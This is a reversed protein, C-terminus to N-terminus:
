RICVVYYTDTKGNAYDSGDNFNVVWANFTNFKYEYNTWYYNGQCGTFGFSTLTACTAGGTGIQDILTHLEKKSPLRWENNVGLSLYECYSFAPYNAKGAPYSYVKTVNDWTPEAYTNVTSWQLAGANHNMNKDWCLGTLTDLMTGSGCGDVIFENSTRELAFGSYGDSKRSDDFYRNLNTYYANSKTLVFLLSGIVVVILILSLLVYKKSKIKNQAM